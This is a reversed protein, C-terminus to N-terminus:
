LRHFSNKKIQICYYQTDKNYSIEISYGKDKLFDLGKITLDIFNENPDNSIGIYSTHIEERKREEIKNYNLITTNYRTTTKM